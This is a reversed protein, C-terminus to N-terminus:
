NLNSFRCNQHLFSELICWPCVWFVRDVHLICSKVFLTLLMWCNTIKTCHEMKSIQCLESQKKSAILIVTKLTRPVKNSVKYFWGARSTGPVDGSPRRFTRVDPVDLPGESSEYPVLLFSLSKIFFSNKLHM